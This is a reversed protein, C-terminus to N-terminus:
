REKEMEEETIKKGAGPGPTQDFIEKVQFTIAVSPKYVFLKLLEEPVGLAKVVGALKDAYIDLIAEDQANSKRSSLYTGKFQYTEHSFSDAISLSTYNNSELNRKLKEFEKELVYFTINERDAGVIAGYVRNAHPMLAEDRSGVFMMQPGHIFDVMKESLKM